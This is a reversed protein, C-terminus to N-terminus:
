PAHLATDGQAGQKKIVDSRWQILRQLSANEKEFRASWDLRNMTEPAIWDWNRWSPQNWERARSELVSSHPCISFKSSDITWKAQPLRASYLEKLEQAWSARVRDNSLSNVPVKIWVQFREEDRWRLVSLNAYVWPLCEDELVIAYEPFGLSWPGRVATGEFSIWSWEPKRVERNFLSAAVEPNLKETEFSSLCWIWQPARVAQSQGSDVEMETLRSREIQVDVIKQAALYRGTRAFTKFGPDDENEPWLGVESDHPFISSSSAEWSESHFPSTWQTLFRRVWDSGFDPSIQELKLNKLALHTRAFFANLPGNLEIPGDKLWFVLGRALPGVKKLVTVQTELPAKLSIPFPGFSTAYENSFASTFDFVNVEFDREQLALALTEGRGFATVINVQWASM